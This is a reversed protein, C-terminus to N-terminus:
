RRAPRRDRGAVPRRLLGLQLLSRQESSLADLVRRVKARLAPVDGSEHAPGLQAIMTDHTSAMRKVRRGQSRRLAMTRVGITWWVRVSFRAPDFVRSSRWAEVLVEHVAKEADNRDGVIRLAVGM